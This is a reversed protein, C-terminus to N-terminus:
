DEMPYWLDLHEETEVLDDHEALTARVLARREIDRPNGINLIDAIRRLTDEGVHSACGTLARLAPVPYRRRAM